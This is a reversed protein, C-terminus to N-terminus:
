GNFIKIRFCYRNTPHAKLCNYSIDPPFASSVKLEIMHIEEETRQISLEGKKTAEALKNSNNYLEDLQERREKLQTAMSQKM